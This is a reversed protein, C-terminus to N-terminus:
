FIEEEDQIMEMTKHKAADTVEAYIDLTTQIDAHGMIEQIIKVNTERECLRTCFTHRMHHCSFRPLLLPDVLEKTDTREKDANYSDCVRKIARNILGQHLPRGDRNQFVFGCVGDVVIQCFGNMQQHKYEAFLADKVEEMMPITRIGKRTKPTSIHFTSKEDDEWEAYLLNRRVYIEGKEFDVDNWCLGCVESVRMGTGFMFAFLTLWHYYIPHNETYDMFAKTQAISLAHRKKKRSWVDSKKIERMVDKTPNLRLLGDRICMEFVPHLITHVNDVTSAKLGREKIMYWYFGKVDSYKINKLLKYGFQERVFHDYTYRYNAKTSDKIDHKLIIYRDFADNLSTSATAYSRIGDIRDRAIEDEKKRLDIITSAYVTHSHKMVDRYQFIYLNKDKRFSEGNRLVRGKPDRRAIIDM